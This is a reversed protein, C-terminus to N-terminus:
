GPTVLRAPRARSVQTSGRGDTPVPRRSSPSRCSRAAALPPRAPVRRPRRGGGAGYAHRARRGRGAHRRRRAGAAFRVAEADLPAHRAADRLTPRRPPHRWPLRHDARGGSVDAGPVGLAVGALALERGSLTMRGRLHARVPGASEELRGRGRWSMDDLVGQVKGNSFRADRLDFSGSVRLRDLVERTGPTLELAADVALTGQVPPRMGDVILRLVDAASSTPPSTVRLSV